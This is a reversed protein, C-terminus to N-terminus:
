VLPASGPADNTFFELTTTSTACRYHAMLLCFLHAVLLGKGLLTLVLYPSSGSITAEKQSDKAVWISRGLSFHNLYWGGMSTFTTSGILTSSFSNSIINIRNNRSSINLFWRERNSYLIMSFSWSHNTLTISSCRCQLACYSIIGGMHRPM